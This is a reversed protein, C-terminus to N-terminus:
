NLVILQTKEKILKGNSDQCLYIFGEKQSKILKGDNYNMKSIDCAAGQEYCVTNGITYEGSRHTHSMVLSTFIYGENRFFTVANDTTKMMGSSFASPHVFMTQGIQCFWSDHYIIEIDSFVKNLPEYWTKAMKRKDYHRFGDEFILELATRPMLELLDSDLNKAFYTQFRFDHNGYNVEVRKPRIYLILDIVYQRCQILEEMPSVRYIKPFRSIAQCDTLDGNLQLTDVRGRYEEFTEIPLQFPVHLDSISLIRNAIGVPNRLYNDYEMLGYATKRLHDYHCDLGLLDVIEQWETDIERNLKAKCLRLKYEFDSENDKRNLINLNNMREVILM